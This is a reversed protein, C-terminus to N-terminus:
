QRLLFELVCMQTQLFVVCNCNEATKLHHMHNTLVCDVNWFHTSQECYFLRLINFNCCSLQLKENFRPFKCIRLFRGTLIHNGRYYKIQYVPVQSM